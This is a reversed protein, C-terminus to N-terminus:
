VSGKRKRTTMTRPCKGKMSIRGQNRLHKVVEYATSTSAVGLHQQIERVTPSIGEREQYSCIFRFAIEMREQQKESIM